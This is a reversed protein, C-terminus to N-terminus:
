TLFSQALVFLESVRECVEVIGGFGFVVPVLLELSPPPHGLNQGEGVVFLLLFKFGFVLQKDLGISTRTDHCSPSRPACEKLKGFIM